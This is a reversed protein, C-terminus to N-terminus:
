EKRKNDMKTLPDSRVAMALRVVNEKNTMAFTSRLTLNIIVLNLFHASKIYFGQKM